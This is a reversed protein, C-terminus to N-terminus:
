PSSASRGRRYAPGVGLVKVPPPDDVSGAFTPGTLLALGLGLTVTLWGIRKMAIERGPPGPVHNTVQDDTSLVRLSHGRYRRTPYSAQSSRRVPEQRDKSVNKGEAKKAAQERERKGGDTFLGARMYFQLFAGVSVLICGLYVIRWSPDYRVHFVSQFRGTKQNTRANMEPIYSSQYFTFGQHKMPENMSITVPKDEIDHAKDTM